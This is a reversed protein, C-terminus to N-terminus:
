CGCSNYRTAHAHLPKLLQDMTDYLTAVFYWPADTFPGTGHWTMGNAESGSSEVTAKHRYVVYRHEHKSADGPQEM